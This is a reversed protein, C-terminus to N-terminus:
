KTVSERPAALRHQVDEAILTWLNNSEQMKIQPSTVEGVKVAMLILDM